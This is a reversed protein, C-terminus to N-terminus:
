PGPSGAPPIAARLAATHAPGSGCCSGVLRAGAALLRPLAEALEAPGVRYVAHGEELAPTGANPQVLVPAGGAAAVLERTLVEYDSLSLSTGCNAGVVEAGAALAAELAEAVSSGMMTRFGDAAHQFAFTALVLGCGADRAARVALAAEAPDSMTEVLVADAGGELLSAVQARFSAAVAEPQYEGFPEMFGGFPGVDGLVFAREGAAQRALRAGAANLEVARDGLGHAALALASGMFTNTTLLDAGAAVYADHVSGVKEPDSANWSEGCRGFELGLKQLETGTAGDCLLTGRTLRERLAATRSTNRADNM